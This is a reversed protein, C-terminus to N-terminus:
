KRGPVFPSSGLKPISAGTLEELRKRSQEPTWGKRHGNVWVESSTIEGTQADRFVIAPGEERHLLDNQWWEEHVVVGTEPDYNVEAPGGERHLKGRQWWEEHTVRGNQENRRIAAPGGVRHATRGNPLMWEEEIVVGTTDCIRAEVICKEYTYNM